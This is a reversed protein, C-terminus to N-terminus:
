VPLPVETTVRRVSRTSAAVVTAVVIVVACGILTAPTGVAHALPGVLAEGLPVAVFSGVMDYLTSGRCCPAPCTQSCHTTGPSRSCSSPSGAWPSRSSYPRCPRPSGQAGRRPARDGGDPRCRHRACAPAAVAPRDACRTGPRRDARRRRAGLGGQRFSDDAVVPGLVTTAGVFAANLVAFQAVVTWVWRRGSFEVWGERIDVIVSPRDAPAISARRPLRIRAYLAAAVAFGAADVALGWGAGVLRSWAPGPPPM